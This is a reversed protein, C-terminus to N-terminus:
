PRSQGKDRYQQLLTKLKAVMEPKDAYLNKQEQPDDALNYLQGAPGGPQPKETRPASFGGSGLGDIWKWDGQRIAFLGSGSHHVTAERLPKDLKDNVLAPLFSVSDEGANEPLKTDAIAACTALVDTLCITQESTSGPKVKGPWRVIFPVRHGAEWIDAKQGRWTGNSRHGFKKIDDATWPAGNDSTFLVLTNDSLKLKDLAALVQGVAVDVQMTFDGLPGVKSKGSYEKTPVWPTHPANLAFYLFFPRAPAEKAQKELFGVAKETLKPLVDVHKFSPAIAGARWFYNEEHRNATPAMITATPQEVCRDNEVFVYPPMDLSAPIGFFYDFGVSNPGPTLAKSYDTPKDKGLGLHWKGVAATAYGQKKLLSAVSLRDPEVMLPDYGQLVGQKLSTRWCYRGTLLGYRTPTCVSSPTHADSFRMGQSALRDIHPTPIKSEKSYCGPDGYGMDDALIVVINPLPTKEAANAQPRVSFITLGLALIVGATPLRPLNLEKM